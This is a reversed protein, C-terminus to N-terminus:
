GEMDACDFFFFHENRGPKTACPFWQKNCLSGVIVARNPQQSTDPNFVCVFVCVSACVCERVRMFRAVREKEIACM